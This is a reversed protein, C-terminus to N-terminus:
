QVGGTLGETQCPLLMPAESGDQRYWTRPGGTYRWDGGFRLEYKASLAKRAIEIADAPEHCNVEYALARFAGIAGPERGEFRVTFWYMPLLKHGCYRVDAGCEECLRM